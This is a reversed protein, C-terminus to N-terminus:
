DEEVASEDVCTVESELKDASEDVVDDSFRDVTEVDVVLVEEVLGAVGDEAVSDGVGAVDDEVVGEVVALVGGDVSFGVVTFASIWFAAIEPRGNGGPGDPRGFFFGAEQESRYV